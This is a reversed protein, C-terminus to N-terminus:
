EAIYDENYNWDPFAFCDPSIGEEDLTAFFVENRAASIEAAKAEFDGGEVLALQMETYEDSTVAENAKQLALSNAVEPCKLVPEPYIKRLPSGVVVEAVAALGPDEIGEAPVFALTGFGRNVYNTGYFGEPRTLWEIFLSAEEPHESQASIWVKNNELPREAISGTRGEDPAPAIAIGLDLDEFGMGGLVSPIWTGGFYIGALGSAMSSRAFAKDNLGPMILEDQYLGSLFDFAKLNYDADAAFEGLKSDFWSSSGISGSFPIWIRHLESAPEMPMAICFPGSEKIAECAARLESWTQPPAEPDLGADRFVDKNYYMFGHGWIVSDNLPFTYYEGDMMNVGDVFYGEPWRSTWDDPMDVLPQTWGLDLLEPLTLVPTSGIYWFVDPSEGSQFMLPLAEDYQDQALTEWEIKINPYEKAFEEAVEDYFDDQEQSWNMVKLTVTEDQAAAQPILGAVLALLVFMVILMRKM